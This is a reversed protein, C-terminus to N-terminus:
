FGRTKYGAMFPRRRTMIAQKGKISIGTIRDLSLTALGNLEEGRSANEGIFMSCLAATRYYLFGKANIIGISSSAVVERPFITKIYDIKVERDALAGIFKIRQDQWIWYTLSQTPLDDIAHPLFERQTMPIFPDVTGGLREYLGQIEVLDRPYNPPTNPPYGIEPNIAKIGIPVTIFAATQNTVPINNLEFLEQLEDLAMNLYPLQATYTYSTKAADNMLAAVRDMVIVATLDTTSAPPM